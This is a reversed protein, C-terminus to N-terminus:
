AQEVDLALAYPLFREFVEPTKEPPNLLNLRDKEAVSLYLRLGEIADMVRRGRITPAKMLHYFLINLLVVVLICGAAAISTAQTFLWLGFVEGGLFPLCFLTMFLASGAHVIKTSGDSLAARWAKAAQFLLAACGATWASLWLTMFVAVPRNRGLVVIAGLVLVSIVLGPVLAHRNTLFYLKEYEVALSKKQDSVAQAIVAHNETKVVLQDRGSFLQRAIKTEDQSLGEHDTRKRALTYVGQEDEEISLFGKVAMNVVAAAFARHDFGMHMVYRVAAPSFGKPAEYLPIITGREPDRGVRLWVIFYYALLLAIGAAGAVASKNDSLFYGAKEAPTPEHVFGKPWAVVITLGEGSALPRTTTFVPRGSEDRTVAYDQGKEGLLGTYAETSLVAAGPPLEVTASVRDMAFEWGNGTVNWYLEDHDTFFGLQRDTRYTLTYTYEGPTLTVDKSGMYVRVGNTMPETWWNEGQGDRLVAKVEFAVNVTNGYGDEYRTPFDRFIGHNIRDGECVVQITESVEMDGAPRITIFSDFGLIREEARAAPSLALATVVLLLIRRM